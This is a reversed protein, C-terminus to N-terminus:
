LRRHSAPPGTWSGNAFQSTATGFRLVVKSEGTATLTKRGILIGPNNLTLSRFIDALTSKGWANEGFMLTCQGLTAKNNQASEFRGLNQIFKIESLM